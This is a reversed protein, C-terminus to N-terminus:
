TRDLVASLAVLSRSLLTRVANETRGMVRAVEPIPLEALRALAIVERQEPRLEDLARCLAETAEGGIAERSPSALAGRADAIGGLDAASDRHHRRKQTRQSRLRMRVKNVAATFLWSRFRAEGQWTFDPGAELLERCTSQVLDAVSENLRQNADIQARLFAHLRPLYRVLMREISVADGRTASEALGQTDSDDSETVAPHNGSNRAM